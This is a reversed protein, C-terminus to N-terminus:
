GGLGTASSRVVGLLPPVQGGIGKIRRHCTTGVTGGDGMPVEYVDATMCRQEKIGSSGPRYFPRMPNGLGVGFGQAFLGTEALGLEGGEDSDAGAGEVADGFTVRFRHQLRQMPSFLFSTFQIVRGGMWPHVLAPRDALRLRCASIEQGIGPFSNSSMYNCLLSPRVGIKLVGHFSLGGRQMGFAEGQDDREAQHDQQRHDGDTQQRKGGNGKTRRVTGGRNRFGTLIRPHRHNQRQALKLFERAFIAPDGSRRIDCTAWPADCESRPYQRHVVLGDGVDGLPESRHLGSGAVPGSNKHVLIRRGRDEVLGGAWDVNMPQDTAVVRGVAEGVQATTGRNDGRVAFKRHTCGASYAIGGFRYNQSAFIANATGGAANIAVHNSRKNRNEVLSGALDFAAEGPPHPIFPDFGFEVEVGGKGIGLM